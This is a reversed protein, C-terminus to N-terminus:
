TVMINFDDVVSGGAMNGIQLGKQMALDTFPKVAISDPSNLRSNLAKGTCGFPYKGIALYAINLLWRSEM